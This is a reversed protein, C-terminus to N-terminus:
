TALSKTLYAWSSIDKSVDQLIGDVSEDVLGVLVDGVDGISMDFKALKIGDVLSNNQTTIVQNKGTVNLAKAVYFSANNGNMNLFDFPSVQLNNKQNDLVSAVSRVAAYKTVIYISLDKKYALDEVCKLAGYIALLNFKSSRRTNIPTMQKLLHKYSSIDQNDNEYHFTKM